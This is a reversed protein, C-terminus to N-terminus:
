AVDHRDKTLKGRQNKVESDVKGEWEERGYRYKCRSRKEREREM